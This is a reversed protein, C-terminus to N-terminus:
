RKMKLLLNRLCLPSCSSVSFSLLTSSCASCGDDVSGGASACVPSGSTEELCAIGSHADDGTIRGTSVDTERIKQRERDTVSLYDLM